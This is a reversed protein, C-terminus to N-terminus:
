VPKKDLKDNIDQALVLFAENIGQGTKASTEM